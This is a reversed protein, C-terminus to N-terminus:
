RTTATKDESDKGSLKIRAINDQRDSLKKAILLQEAILNRSSITVM